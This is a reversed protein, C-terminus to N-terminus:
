DWISLKSVGEKWFRITTEGIRVRVTDGSVEVSAPEISDVVANTATLVHLFFNERAPQVPSVEVRCEPAPGTDRQPPYAQGGYRYLDEGTVLQVKSREPLLTQIFLRGKGHTVVLHDGREVPPKM